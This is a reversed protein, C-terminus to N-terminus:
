VHARGIETASIVDQPKNMMLYVYKKYAVVEGRYIVEDVEPDVKDKGIRVTVGNVKVQGFRLADKMESRTGKGMNALMKDLRIKEGM